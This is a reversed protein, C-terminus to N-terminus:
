YLNGDSGVERFWTAAGYANASSDGTIANATLVGGVASPSSPDSFTLEALLTTPTGGKSPRTGDYIRILGAGTGAERAATIQDARFNCLTDASQITM